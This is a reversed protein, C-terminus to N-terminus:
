LGVSGMLVLIGANLAAGKRQYLSLFFLKFRSIGTLGVLSCAGAGQLEALSEGAFHTSQLGIRKMFSVQLEQENITAGPSAGKNFKRVKQDIVAQFDM